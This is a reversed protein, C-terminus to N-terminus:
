VYTPGVHMRASGEVAHVVNGEIVITSATQAVTNKWVYDKEFDTSSGKPVYFTNNAITVNNILIPGEYFSPIMQLELHLERAHRFTNNLILANSSKFRGLLCATHDWHSSLVRAGKNQSRGSEVVYPVPLNASAALPQPLNGALSIRYV